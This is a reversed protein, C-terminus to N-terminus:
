FLSIVKWGITEVRMLLRETEKLHSNHATAHATVKYSGQEEMGSSTSYSLARGKEYVM